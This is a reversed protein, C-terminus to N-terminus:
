ARLLLDRWFPPNRSVCGLCPLLKEIAIAGSAVAQIRPTSFV